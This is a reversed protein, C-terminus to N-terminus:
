RYTSINNGQTQMYYTEKLTEANLNTNSKDIASSNINDIVVKKTRNYIIDKNNFEGKIELNIDAKYNKANILNAEAESIKATGCGTLFVCTLLILLKKM